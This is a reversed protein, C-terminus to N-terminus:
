RVGGSITNLFYALVILGDKESDFILRDLMDTIVIRNDANDSLFDLVAIKTAELYVGGSHYGDDGYVYGIVYDM